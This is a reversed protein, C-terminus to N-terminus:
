KFYKKCIRYEIALELMKNFTDWIFDKDCQDLKFLFNRLVNILRELWEKNNDSSSIYMEEINNEKFFKEDRNMINEKNDWLKDLCIDMIYNPNEYKITKVMKDIWELDINDKEQKVCFKCVISVEINFKNVIVNVQEDHNNLILSNM